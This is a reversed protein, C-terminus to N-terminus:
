RARGAVRGRLEPMDLRVGMGIDSAGGRLAM